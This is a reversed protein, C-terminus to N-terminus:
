VRGKDVIDLLGDGNLDTFYVNTVHKSQESGLSGHAVCNAGISEHINTSYDKLFRKVGLYQENGFQRDATQLCYRVSDKRIYVADPLGDGNVDTLTSLGKGWNGGGGLNLELTVEQNMVNKGLGINFGGGIGANWTRSSGLLSPTIQLKRSILNLEKNKCSKESIRISSAPNSVTVSDSVYLQGNVDDYYSLEHDWSEGSCDAGWQRIKQLQARGFVDAGYCFSYSRVLSDGSYVVIRRLKNKGSHLFGWRADTRLDEPYEEDCDCQTLCAYADEPLQPRASYISDGTGSGGGCPINEIELILSDPHENNINVAEPHNGHNIIEFRCIGDEKVLRFQFNRLINCYGSHFMENLTFEHNCDSVPIIIDGNRDTSCTNGSDTTNDRLEFRIGPLAIPLGAVTKHIKLFMDPCQCDDEPPTTEDGRTRITETCHEGSFFVTYIGTDGTKANGTYRISELWLQKGLYTTGSYQQEVHYYYMVLNGDMDEVRCLPWYAINGRADKLLVSDQRHQGDYSGYYYKKGSKDRVEWFYNGPATGKRTISDFGTETRSYFVKADQSNRAEWAALYHPSPLLEQGNLLYCETEYGADYRPVGWKSDVSVAPVQMDWGMGLLGNGSESNYSINLDPQMGNRGQPLIIPYHMTATGESGAQPAEMLTIGSAPHAAEMEQLMTPTYSTGEPLEPYSIIANIMDTFHDTRSYVEGRETSVSDYPLPKWHRQQEDYYYTRIEKYSHGRPIKATDYGMTLHVEKGFRTGHPLFRYCAHGATVNVMGADLPPMGSDVGSVVIRMAADVSGAPGSLMVEGYSVSFPLGSMVDCVAVDQVKKAAPESVTEMAKESLPAAADSFVQRAYSWLSYGAISLFLIVIIIIVRKM